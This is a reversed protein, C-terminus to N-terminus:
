MIYEKNNNDKKEVFKIFYINDYKFIEDIGTSQNYWRTKGAEVELFELYGVEGNKIDRHQWRPPRVCMIYKSQKAIEKDLVEFVYTIYGSWDKNQTILKALTIVSQTTTM